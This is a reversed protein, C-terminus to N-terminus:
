NGSAICAHVYMCLSYICSLIHIHVYSQVIDNTSKFDKKKTILQMQMYVCDSYSCYIDLCKDLM